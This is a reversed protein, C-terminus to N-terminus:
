VQRRPLFRHTVQMCSSSPDSTAEDAAFKSKGINKKEAGYKKLFFFTKDASAHGPTGYAVVDKELLQM